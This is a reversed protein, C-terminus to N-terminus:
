FRFQPGTHAFFWVIGPSVRPLPAIAGRTDAQFAQLAAHV